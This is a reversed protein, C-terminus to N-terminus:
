FQYCNCLISVRSRKDDEEAAIKLMALATGLPEMRLLEDLEMEDFEPSIEKFVMIFDEPNPINQVLLLALIPSLNSNVLCTRFPSEYNCAHTVKLIVEKNNNLVLWPLIEAQTMKFLDSVSIGLLDALSQV